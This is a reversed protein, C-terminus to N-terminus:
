RNNQFYAQLRTNLAAFAQVPSGGTSSAADAANTVFLFAVGADSYILARSLNRTNSGDHRVIRQTQGLFVQWGFGYGLTPTENTQSVMLSRVEAQTLLSSQGADARLLELAYRSWDPLSMHVKGSGLAWANDCAECVVWGSGLPTHGSPHDIGGSVTTPGFGASTIGMPAFVRQQMAQTFSQGFARAAV